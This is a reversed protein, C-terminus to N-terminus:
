LTWGKRYTKHIHRDAQPTNTAKLNKADWTIKQGVRYAVVGLLVAESLAGSYEFNCTTPGGTKGSVLLKAEEGAAPSAFFAGVLVTMVM